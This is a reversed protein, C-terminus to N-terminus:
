EMGPSANIGIGHQSIPTGDPATTTILIYETGDKRQIHTMQYPNGWPDLLDAEGNRLLSPGGFPPYVLDRTSKPERTADSRNPSMPSKMYVEIAFTINVCGLQARAKRPDDRSTDLYVFVGQYILLAMVVGFSVVVWRPTRKKATPSMVM